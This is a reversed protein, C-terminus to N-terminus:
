RAYRRIRDMIEPRRQEIAAITDAVAQNEDICDQPLDFTADAPVAYRAGQGLLWEFYAFDHESNIWHDLSAAVGQPSVEFRGFEAIGQARDISAIYAGGPPNRHLYCVAAFDKGRVLDSPFRCDITHCDFGIDEPVSRASLALPHWQMGHAAFGGDSAFFFQHPDAAMRRPTRCMFQQFCAPHINELALRYLADPPVSLAAAQRYAALAPSMTRDTARLLSMLVIDYGGNLKTKADLLCGESLVEDAGICVMDAGIQRAYMLSDYEVMALINRNWAGSGLLDADVFLEEPIVDIEVRVHEQLARLAQLAQLRDVDHRRTHIHLIAPGFAALASANGRALLSSLVTRGASDIFREGWVGLKILTPRGQLPQRGARMVNITEVHSLLDLVAQEDDLDVTGQLAAMVNTLQARAMDPRKAHMAGFASQVLILRARNVAFVTLPNPGNARIDALALGLADSFKEIFTLVYAAAAPVSVDGVQLTGLVEIQGVIAALETRAANQDPSAALRLLREALADIAAQPRAGAPPVTM